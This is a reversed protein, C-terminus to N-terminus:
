QSWLQKPDWQSENYTWFYEEFYSKVYVLIQM